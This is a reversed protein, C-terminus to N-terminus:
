YLVKVFSGLGPAEHRMFNHVEIGSGKEEFKEDMLKMFEQASYKMGNGNLVKLYAKTVQFGAGKRDQAAMLASVLVEMKSDYAEIEANRKTQLADDANLALPEPRKGNWCAIAQLRMALVQAEVKWDEYEKGKKGNFKELAIVKTNM